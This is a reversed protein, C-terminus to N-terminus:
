AFYLIALHPINAVSDVEIGVAVAEVRRCLGLQLLLGRPQLLKSLEVDGDLTMGILAPRTFVIESKALAAGLRHDVIKGCEADIGRPQLFDGVALLLRDAGVAGLGAPVLIPAADRRQVVSWGESSTDRADRGGELREHTKLAPHLEGGATPAFQGLGRAGRDRGFFWIRSS